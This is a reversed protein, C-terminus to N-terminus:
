FILSLYLRQARMKGERKEIPFYKKEVKKKLCIKKKKFKEYKM